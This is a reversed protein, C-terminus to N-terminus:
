TQVKTLKALQDVDFDRYPFRISTSFEASTRKTDPGLPAIALANGETDKIVLPQNPSVFMRLRSSLPFVRLANRFQEVDLLLKGHFDLATVGHKLQNDIDTFTTSDTEVEYLKDTRSNIVNVLGMAKSPNAGARIFCTVSDKAMQFGNDDKQSKMLSAFRKAEVEGIKPNPAVGAPAIRASPTSPVLDPSNPSVASPTFSVSPTPPPIGSVPKPKVKYAVMVVPEGRWMAVPITQAEFGSLELNHTIDKVKEGMIAGHELDVTWGDKTM